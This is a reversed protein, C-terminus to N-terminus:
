SETKSKAHEIGLEVFQQLQEETIYGEPQVFVFEKMPKGTFDMPSVNPSSLLHEMKEHIVRVVLRGKTEGICMKGKYLFCTGGFMRKEILHDKWPDLAVILRNLLEEKM